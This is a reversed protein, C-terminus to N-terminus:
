NITRAMRAIRTLGMSLALEEASRFLTAAREQDRERGGNRLVRALEFEANAIFPPAAMRRALRLAAEFHVEALSPDGMVSALLGLFLDASGYCASAPGRVVIATGAYPRMREYLAPAHTANGSNSCAAAAYALTVGETQDDSVTEWGLAALADLEVAAEESRGLESLLLALAAQVVPYDAPSHRLIERFSEELEPLRDQQWWTWALLVGYFSLALDNYGEALEIALTGLQEGTDIQGNVLAMMARVNCAYSATLPDRPGTERSEFRTIEDTVADVDGSALLERVRWLHGHLALVEDGVEDAVQSLETGIALREPAPDIGWLAHLRANLAYGLAARDGLRRAMSIAEASLGLARKLVGRIPVGTEYVLVLGLRATVMARLHSDDKSLAQGAEELLRVQDTNAGVIGMYSLPGARLAATALREADGLTRAIAAAREFSRDAEVKDGAKNQAEALALLADCKATPELAGYVEAVELGRSFHGVAEEFALLQLARDGAFYCYTAAKDADGLAAGMYFHHALENVYTDISDLHAQETAVAIEHHFRVRRSRLLQGYIADRVLAHSFAYREGSDGVRHMLRSDVARDVADIREEPTLEAVAAVITADCEPGAVAATHLFRIVEEPLRAVRRSVLEKVAEPTGVSLTLPTAGTQATESGAEYHLQRLLEDLFLPNGETLQFLQGALSTDPGLSTELLQEVASITLGELSVRVVSRDSWLDSTVTRLPHDAVVDTSRYLGVIGLNISRADRLLHRLLLVTPQNAWHLDDLVLLIPARDAAEYLTETVAGFFRFRDQEPDTLDVSRRPAYESLRLVLRSLETLRWEPMRSIEDASLSDFYRGIAEAFPQFPAVPDEDCRGRLVLGDSSEVFAAIESALRTKGIGADGEILLLRSDNRQVTDWWNRVTVMEDDRGVLQHLPAPGPIVTREAVSRPVPEPLPAPVAADPTSAEPRIWELDRSQQLIAKELWQADHGPEIGLESILIERLEQYVRLSEAQRGSRYLALMRQSWLRERMPNASALNELEGTVENHRGLTLEADFRTELAMLRLEELRRAEARAFPEDCVESYAAGRWLNEAMKLERVSEHPHRGALNRRGAAVHQEFRHVDTMAADVNLSYGLAKTEILEDSVGADRLRKRVRSVMTRLAKEAGDDDQGSWFADLLRDVPVTLNRDILLRAVLARARIGGIDIPRGNWTIEVPGLVRLELAPVTPSVPEGAAHEMEVM